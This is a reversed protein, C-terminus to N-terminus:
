TSKNAVKTAYSETWVKMLDSAIDLNVEEVKLQRLLAKNHPKDLVQMFVSMFVAAVEENTLVNISILNYVYEQVEDLSLRHKDLVKKLEKVKKKDM